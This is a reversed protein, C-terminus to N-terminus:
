KMSKLATEYYGLDVYKKADTLSMKPEAYRSRVALATEVGKFNIAAARNFGGKGSTMGTYTIEAQGPTLKMRQALVALATAKDAYILEHAAIEARIFALLEPEHVKAWSRRAAYVSAQYGGVAEAADALVTYGKAKVEFDDPPALVGVHARGQEMAEIRGRGNGVALPTYDRGLVLGHDELIRYLVFGYGSQLADVAAIKGKLDAFSKIEPRAIVYNTGSHVGAFGMVDFGPLVIDAQKETFGVINDIATIALAYKGDMMAQMQEIAGRTPAFTIELGEKAFLGRDMALWTPLNSAGSFGIVELRTAAPAASTPLTALLLGVLAAGSQRM